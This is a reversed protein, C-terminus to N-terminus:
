AEFRIARAGRRLTAVGIARLRDLNSTITIKM